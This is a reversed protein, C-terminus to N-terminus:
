VKTSLESPQNSTGGQRYPQFIHVRFIIKMIELIGSVSNELFFEVLFHYHHKIFYIIVLPIEFIIEIYFM